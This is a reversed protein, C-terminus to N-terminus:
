KKQPKKRPKKKSEKKPEPPLATIKERTERILAILEAESICLESQTIAEDVIRLAETGTMDVPEFINKTDVNGYSYKTDIKAYVISGERVFEVTKSLGCSVSISASPTNLEFEECIETFDDVEREIKKEYTDVKDSLREFKEQAALLRVIKPNARLRAEAEDYVGKMIPDLCTKKLVSILADRRTLTMPKAM